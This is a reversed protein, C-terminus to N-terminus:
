MCQFCRYKGNVPRSYRTHFEGCIWNQIADIIKSM